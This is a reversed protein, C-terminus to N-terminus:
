KMTFDADVVDDNAPHNNDQPQEPNPNSQQGAQQQQQYAQAAADELRGVIERLKDIDNAQITSSGSHIDTGSFSSAWDFRQARTPSPTWLCLSILFVPLLVQRFRQFLDPKKM